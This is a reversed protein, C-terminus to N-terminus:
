RRAEKPVNLESQRAIRKACTRCVFASTGKELVGSRKRGRADVWSGLYEWRLTLRARKGTELVNGCVSCHRVRKNM